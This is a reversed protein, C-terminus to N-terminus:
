KQLLFCVQKLTTGEEHALKAIKACNDYGMRDNLATVLMLSGHLLNDIRRRNAQIGQVCNIAMSLCADGLLRSSRFFNDIIVPKFANLEFQGQMGAITITTHNGMVQACVM